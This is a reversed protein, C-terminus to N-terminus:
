DLGGEVQSSKEAISCCARMWSFCSMKRAHPPLFLLRPCSYHNSNALCFVQPLPTTAPLGSGMDSEGHTKTKLASHLRAPCSCVLEDSLLLLASPPVSISSNSCCLFILAQLPYHFDLSGVTYWDHYGVYLWIDCFLWLFTFTYDNVPFLLSRSAIRLHVPTSNLM